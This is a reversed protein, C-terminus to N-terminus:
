KQMIEDLVLDGDPATLSVVKLLGKKGEKTQFFIVDGVAIPSITNATATMDKFLLDRRMEDFQAPTISTRAFKIGSDPFRGGDYYEPYFVTADLDVSALQGYDFSLDILTGSNSAVAKGTHVDMCSWYNSNWGGLTANRYKNVNMILEKIKFPSSTTVNGNVDTVKVTINTNKSIARVDLSFKCPNEQINTIKTGAIEVESEQDQFFFNSYFQISQIKGETSVTGTIICGENTYASDLANTNDFSITVPVKVGSNDSECGTVLGLLGIAAAFVFLRINKM